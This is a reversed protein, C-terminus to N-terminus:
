DESIVAEEPAVVPLEALVESPWLVGVIWVVGTGWVVAAEDGTTEEEAIEEGVPALVCSIVVEVTKVVRVAVIVAQGEVTM